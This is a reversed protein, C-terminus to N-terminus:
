SVHFRSFAGQLSGTTDNLGAIAKNTDRLAVATQHTAEGLQSMAESIERAADSQSRVGERVAEFRIATSEVEAIIRTLEDRTRVSTLVTQGLRDSFRQMSAVGSAVANKMEKVMKEIDLTAAATQDALRRIERAVVAFGQGYQGAKEAEIAANLSLLNTQDAVKTITTVVTGINAARENIASLKESVGRYAEEMEAMQHEMESLERKGAGASRATNESASSVENVTRALGDATSSIQRATAVVENTAAVHETMTAELEKSGAAIRTTNSTVQIGSSLVQRILGELKEMFLNFNFSLFSIEDNGKVPLRKSLDADATSLQHLAGAVGEIPTTFARALLFAATTILIAAVAASTATTVFLSRAEQLAEEEDLSALVAWGLGAYSAYGRSRFYGVMQTGGNADFAPGDEFDRAQPQLASRVVAGEMRQELVDAPNPSVLSIGDQSLVRLQLTQWRRGTGAAEAVIQAAANWNFRNSWVGTVQGQADRIPASFSMAFSQPGSGYVRRALDDTHLDEVLSVGDALGMARRFWDTNSVDLGILPRADLSRGDLGVTNAGIIHGSSDAVVMLVYIPSYTAMMTNMWTTLRNPDMARAADSKAYAQVDGYREFLNRDLKDAVNFAVAELAGGAEQRLRESARHVAITGVVFQPLLGVLLLVTILKLRMSSFPSPRLM